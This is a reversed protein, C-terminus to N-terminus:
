NVTMFFTCTPPPGAAVVYRLSLDVWWPHRNFFISFVVRKASLSSVLRCRPSFVFQISHWVRLHHPIRLQNGRRGPVHMRRGARSLRSLSRTRVPGHRVDRRRDCAGRRRSAGAPRPCVCASLTTITRYTCQCDCTWITHLKPRISM